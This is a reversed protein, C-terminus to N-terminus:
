TARLHVPAAILQKKKGGDKIDVVYAGGQKGTVTGALGKYRPFPMGKHIAPEQDIVVKDGINFEQLIKTIKVKGRDRPKKRLKYRSKARFGGTRQTM